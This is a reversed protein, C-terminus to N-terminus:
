SRPKFAVVSLWGVLSKRKCILSPNHVFPFWVLKKLRLWAQLLFNIMWEEGHQHLSFFFFVLELYSFAKLNSCILVYVYVLYLGMSGLSIGSDGGLFSIIWSCYSVAFFCVCFCVSLSFTSFWSFSKLWESEFIHSNM